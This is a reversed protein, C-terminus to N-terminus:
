RCKAKVFVTLARKKLLTLWSKKVAEEISDATVTITVRRGLGQTTEVSVQM